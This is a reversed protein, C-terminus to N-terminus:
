QCRVQTTWGMNFGYCSTPLQHNANWQNQYNQMAQNFAAAAQARNYAQLYAAEPSEPQQNGQQMDACGTALTSLISLVIIKKLM